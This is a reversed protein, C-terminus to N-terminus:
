HMISFVVITYLKFDDTVCELVTSNFNLKLERVRVCVGMCM